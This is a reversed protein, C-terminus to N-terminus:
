RRKAYLALCTNVASLLAVRAAAPAPIQGSAGALVAAITDSAHIFVGLRLSRERVAADGRLLEAGLIVTRVGFLRFAYSAGPNKEPDLQLGRLLIHPALLAALGNFLRICALAIRAYERTQGRKGSMAYEKYNM